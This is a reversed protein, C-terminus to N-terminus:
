SNNSKLILSLTVNRNEKIIVRATCNNLSSYPDIDGPDRSAWPRMEAESYWFTAASVCDALGSAWLFIAPLITQPSFNM